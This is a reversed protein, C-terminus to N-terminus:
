QGPYQGIAAEQQEHCGGRRTHLGRRKSEPKRLCPTKRLCPSQDSGTFTAREHQTPQMGERSDERQAHKEDEVKPRVSVGQL